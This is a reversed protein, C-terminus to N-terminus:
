RTRARTAVQLSLGSSKHQIQKHAPVNSPLASLVSRKMMFFLGRRVVMLHGNKAKYVMPEQGTSFDVASEKGAQIEIKISCVFRSVCM